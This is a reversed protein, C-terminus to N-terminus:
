SEEKQSTNQGVAGEGSKTQRRRSDKANSSTLDRLRAKDTTQARQERIVVNQSVEAHVQLDPGGSSDEAENLVLGDGCSRTSGLLSM